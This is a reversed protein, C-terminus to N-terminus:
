QTSYYTTLGEYKGIDQIREVLNYIRLLFPSQSIGGLTVQGMGLRHYLLAQCMLPVIFIRMM